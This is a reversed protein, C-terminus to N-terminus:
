CPGQVMVMWSLGYRDAAMGFRPSWFTEMMPMEVQGGDSLVQFLREAEAVDKVTLALSFGQFSRKGECRGDSLMIEADGVRICAHMVKDDTAPSRMEPEPSERYYMLAKVEAGLATKYFEIAEECGGDFYLYPQVRM